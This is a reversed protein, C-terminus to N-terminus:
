SLVLMLTAIGGCASVFYAGINNILCNWLPKLLRALYLALGNHRGSHRIAPKSEVLQVMTAVPPRAILCVDNLLAQCLLLNSSDSPAINVRRMMHLSNQTASFFALLLRRLM